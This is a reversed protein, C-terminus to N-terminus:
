NNDKLKTEIELFQERGDIEKIGHIIYTKEDYVIRYTGLITVGLNRVYFVLDTGQVNEQSEEKRRSAKWDAHAWLTYATEYVKTEAGYRDRTYTPSKVQIRRDLQGISLM